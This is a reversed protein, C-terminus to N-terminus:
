DRWDLSIYALYYIIIIVRYQVHDGSRKCSLTSRFVLFRRCKNIFDNPSGYDDDHDTSHTARAHLPVVPETKKLSVLPWPPLFYLIISYKYLCYLVCLACVVVVVDVIIIVVVIYLLLLLQNDYHLETRHPAATTTTPLDSPRTPLVLKAAATQRARVKTWNRGVPHGGGGVVSKRTAPGYLCHALASRVVKTKPVTKWLDSKTSHFFLSRRWLLQKATYERHLFGDASRSGTSRVSGSRDPARVFSLGEAGSIM